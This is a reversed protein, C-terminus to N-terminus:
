HKVASSSRPSTGPPLSSPCCEACFNARRLPRCPRKGAPLRDTEVLRWSYIFKPKKDRDLYKFVYLGNSRQSEGTNLVRNRNDRRKQSM